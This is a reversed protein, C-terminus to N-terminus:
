VSLPFNFYSDKISLSLDKAAFSLDKIALSLDNAAFSLDKIALSLSFDNIFLPPENMALSLSSISVSLCLSFVSRSYFGVSSYLSRLLWNSNSM